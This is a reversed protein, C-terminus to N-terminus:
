APVMGDITVAYFRCPLFQFVSEPGEQALILCLKLILTFALMDFHGKLRESKM